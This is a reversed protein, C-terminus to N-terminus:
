RRLLDLVTICPCLLRVLFIKAALWSQHLFRPNASSLVCRPLRSPAPPSCTRGRPAEHSNPDNVHNFQLPAGNSRKKSLERILQESAAPRTRGNPTANQVDAAPGSRLCWTAPAGAALPAVRGYGSLPRISDVEQFRGSSRMTSIMFVAATENAKNARTAGIVDKASM